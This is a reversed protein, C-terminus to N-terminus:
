LLRLQPADYTLTDLALQELLTESNLVQNDALWRVTRYKIFQFGKEVTHRLRLDKQLKYAVLNARSGPLIIFSKNPPHADQYVINGILATAIVYCVYEIDGIQNLWLMPRNGESRFGLKVAIQRLLTLITKIEARRSGPQDQDNIKWCDSTPQTEVGYSALCIHTFEINPTTVGPFKQCLARDIEQRSSLPKKLLNCVIAMELRDSIPPKINVEDRLWWQGVELSKESGFYRLFGSRYSFAEEISKNLQSLNDASSLAPHNIQKKSVLNSLAASHLHLYVSAEGKETLYDKAAKIISDAQDETTFDISVPQPLKSWALQAQSTEARLAFGALHFGASDTAIMTSSLFGPEAEGLMEFLRLDPALFDYLHSFASQLATAHWAWDYRRRRLVTKFPGLAERGWLWGSWLASLTWFAQNPRPIATVVAGVKKQDLHEVLDKLRGEFICISGETSTSDPWYSIPIPPEKTAWSHIANEMAKWINNERFRPPITLLRPRARGTPHPWLTNAQDCTSFLLATIAKRHKTNLNIGDLKNILTFLGYIARPLYTSLAEEVHHRDPDGPSTVRDLARAYHLSSAIYKAAKERDTDTTPHEGYEGCHECHIIKAIPVANGSYLLHTRNESAKGKQNVTSTDDSGRDWVFAEAEVQNGCKPCETQYLSRLHIELREDGKKSSAIEALAARLELEPSPEAAMEILFRIIPNNAAVLVRYGARALEIVLRPSAGFPELIWPPDANELGSPPHLELWDVAVGVPLPPLYRSLPELKDAAQGPIFPMFVSM